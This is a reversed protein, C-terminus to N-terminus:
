GVPELTSLAVELAREAPAEIDPIVGVGEWNEGNKPNASRAVPLTLELHPHVRLGMRPHAGGKTREGVVTARGLHQLDYALEEGGSFTDGGTLVRIPKTGGFRPGPVYPLTWSQQTSDSEREYFNMLHVPEGDVLYSCILAVTSPDGGRVARLDIVLADAKAVLQLAAVISDGAIAPPYLLPEFALLAVNGDLREVRRVGDTTSAAQRTMMATVMEESPLDPVPESHYKLRLHKDDNVSQLDATVLADLAQPTDAADYAGAALRSTLVRAIRAGVDPFVYRGAVERAIEPILETADM